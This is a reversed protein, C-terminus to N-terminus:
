RRKISVNRCSASEENSYKMAQAIIGWVIEENDATENKSMQNGLHDFVSQRGDWNM